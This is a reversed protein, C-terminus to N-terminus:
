SHVSTLERCYYYRIIGSYHRLTKSVSPLRLSSNFLDREGEEQQGTFQSHKHFFIWPSFKYIYIYLIYIYIYTYM